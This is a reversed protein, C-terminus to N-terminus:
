TSGERARDAAGSSLDDAVARAADKPLFECTGDHRAPKTCMRGTRLDTQGCLHADALQTDVGSNHVDQRGDPGDSMINEPFHSM